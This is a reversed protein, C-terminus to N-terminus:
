TPTLLQGNATEGLLTATIAADTGSFSGGGAAAVVAGTATLTLAGGVAVSAITMQGTTNVLITGPGTVNTLTAASASVLEIGGAANITNFNVAAGGVSNIFIGGGGSTANVTPADVDISPGIGPGGIGTVATLNITNATVDVVADSGSDTINAGSTVSATSTGANLEGGIAVSGTHGINIPTNTTTILAGTNDFTTAGAGTSSFGGPVTVDANLDVAGANTMNMSAAEITAGGVSIIGGPSGNVTLAGLTNGAGAGVTNNFTIGGAGSQLTLAQPGGSSTLTNEFTLAGGANIDVAATTLDTPANMRVIGGGTTVMNLGDLVITTNTINVGAATSTTVNDHLTTTGTGTTQVLSSATIPSDAEVNVVTDILLAGLPSGGGGVTNNFDINAPTELTLNQAGTSTLTNEFTITGAADIDTAATTLNTAGNMRVIGGGTTVINLGDLVIAANTIDVGAPATTTVNDHLTTTGTGAAQVLSAAEITSDAEVNVATDILLAGLPNGGGGVTNNFDINAASELTLNQAGTSTLTNEFTITGAADIDTAATTLDTPGNMRVVGGGTTVINLGDLVIANSTLNVGAAASTDVDQKLTTTGQGAAQVLSAATFTNETTVNNANTLNVAGIRTAGVVNNFLVNGGAGADVTLNDTGAVGEGTLTSLFSIDAGAAVTNRTDLLVTADDTLTVPDTFTITDGTTVINGATQVTGGGNQLFLGDLNMNAGPAIDLLTANTIAVEGDNLTTVTSNVNVTDTTIDLSTGAGAGTDNIVVPGDFQTTGTGAQQLLTDANFGAAATTVNLASVIDVDGLDNNGGVAAQFDISGGGATLQLDEDFNTTADLTSRFIIDGIGASTSMTVSASDTLTVAGLFDINDDTTTINGATQVVGTGDQSFEGDLNMNAGPAIDLLTANTIAVEGDNLTTVTSNIIVTDTIIDLGTGAGAGTDNIVVPGNFQTTGTGAQQLLTDANFGAAATTVNLASVIDVDGLDNNGGVAAQFDISGGGATLQLNEDFDTTADLTSRFIIDGIGGGTSMAVSASDTLTVAGLFDINDDTTTINGATQVVGTGGSSTQTFAGDLSMDAGPAIDLTGDLDISVVGGLGAALTNITSDITVNNLASVSGLNMGGIAELVMPGSILTTGTGNQQTLTNASFGNVDTTVNLASVIAVDGLPVGGVADAFLVSGTGATLTLNEAFNTTGNLTDTFTIDGIGAGTSMVVAHGDTLTVANSFNINDDTTTIDGATQVVGTGGSSTQTFAGDLSMDADPAIDLTGDLNISVM